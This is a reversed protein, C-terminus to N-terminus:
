SEAAAPPDEYSRVSVFKGDRVQVINVGRVRYRKGAADTVVADFEIASTDGRPFEQVIEVELGPYLRVHEEYGARIADHGTRRGDPGEYTGDDHYHAMVGDIDRRCEAARYSESLEIPSRM